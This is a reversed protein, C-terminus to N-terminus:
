YKKIILGIAALYKDVGLKFFESDRVSLPHKSVFWDNWATGLNNLEFTKELEFSNSEGIYNEWWECSHYLEYESEEGQIWDIVLQPEIGHIEKKLGPIAIIATGNPKLLPLINEQFFHQQNAFYHFADISIIIDFYNNAFPLENADAHIPIVSDEIGWEKFQDYNETASCWLDVAFVQANTEKALFLSTLGKGCGLDLIRLGSKIPYRELMENLLRLSNPGMLFKESFLEKYKDTRNM